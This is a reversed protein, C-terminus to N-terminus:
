LIYGQRYAIKANGSVKSGRQTVAVIPMQDLKTLLQGIMEACGFTPEDSCEVHLQLKAVDEGYSRVVADNGFASKAAEKVLIALEEPLLSPKRTPLPGKSAPM